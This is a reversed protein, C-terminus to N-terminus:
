DIALLAALLPQRLLLSFFTGWALAEVIAFGFIGLARPADRGGPTDFGCLVWGILSLAAALAIASAAAFLLKGAFVPLWRTPLCAIYGYTEEEHEMVFTTAAVGVAYLAAAAVGMSFFITAWDIITPGFHFAYSTWQVLVGLVLVALWLGRLTRYEKWVFRSAIPSITASQM